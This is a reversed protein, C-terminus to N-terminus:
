VVGATAGVVQKYRVMQPLKEEREAALKAKAAARAAIAVTPISTAVPPNQHSMKSPKLYPGTKGQDKRPQLPQKQRPNATPSSAFQQKKEFRPPNLREPAPARTTTVPSTLQKELGPHLNAPAIASRDPSAFQGKGTRPGYKAAMPTPNGPSSVPKVVIEAPFRGSSNNACKSANLCASRDAKVGGALLERIREAWESKVGPTAKPRVEGAVEARPKAEEQERGIQVGKKVGSAAAAAAKAEAAERAAKRALIARVEEETPIPCGGGDGGDGWPRNEPDDEDLDRRAGKGKGKGNRPGKRNRRKPFWGSGQKERLHIECDDDYCVTWSMEAHPSPESREQRSTLARSLHIPDGWSNTQRGSM